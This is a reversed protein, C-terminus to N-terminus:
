NIKEDLRNQLTFFAILTTVVLVLGIYNVIM